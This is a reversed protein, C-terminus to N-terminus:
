FLYYVFEYNNQFTQNPKSPLFYHDQRFSCIQYALNGLQYDVSEIDRKSMQNKVAFYNYGPIYSMFLYPVSVIECSNDFFLFEPSPQLMEAEWWMINRDVMILKTKDQSDLKLVVKYNGDNILYVESKFGGSLKKVELVAKRHFAKEYMKQIDAYNIKAM